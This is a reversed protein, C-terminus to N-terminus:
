IQSRIWSILAALLMLTLRYPEQHFQGLKYREQTKWERIFSETRNNVTFVTGKYVAQAALPLALGTYLARVGGYQLTSRLTGWIGLPANQSSAMAMATNTTTSAAASASALPASSQMKIRLVDFPHCAITSAMGAASGAMLSNRVVNSNNSTPITGPRSKEKMSAATPISAASSRVGSSNPDVPVYLLTTKGNTFYEHVEPPHGQSGQNPYPRHLQCLNRKLDYRDRPNDEVLRSRVYRHTYM